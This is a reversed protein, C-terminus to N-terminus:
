TTPRHSRSESPHRKKRPHTRPHQPPADRCDRRSSGHPQKRIPHRRRHAALCRPDAGECVTNGVRQNVELPARTHRGEMKMHGRRRRHLATALSRQTGRTSRHSTGPGAGSGRLPTVVHADAHGFSHVLLRDSYRCSPTMLTEQQMHRLGLTYKTVDIPNHRNDRM